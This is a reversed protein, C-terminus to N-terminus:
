ILLFIYYSQVPSTRFALPILIYKRLEPLGPCQIFSSINQIIDYKKTWMQKNM